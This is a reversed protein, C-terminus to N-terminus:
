ELPREWGLSQVQTEQMALLKKVMRLWWSLSISVYSRFLLELYKIIYWAPFLVLDHQILGLRLTWHPSTIGSYLFFSEFVWTELLSDLQRSFRGTVPPICCLSPFYKMQGPIPPEWHSIVCIVKSASKIRLRHSQITIGQLRMELLM